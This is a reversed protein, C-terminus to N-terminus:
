APLRDPILRVQRPPASHDRGTVRVHLTLAKGGVGGGAEAGRRGGAGAAGGSAGLTGGKKGGGLTYWGSGLRDKVPVPSRKGPPVLTHARSSPGGGGGLATPRTARSRKGPSVVAVTKGTNDSATPPPIVSVSPSLALPSAATSTPQQAPPPQTALPPPSPLKGSSGSPASPPLHQSTDLDEFADALEKAIEKARDRDLDTVAVVRPVVAAAGGGGGGGTLATARGGGAAKSQTSAPLDEEKKQSTSSSSGTPEDDDSDEFGALDM